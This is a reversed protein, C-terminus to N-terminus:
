SGRRVVYVATSQGPLLNHHEVSVALVEANERDFEHETVVMDSNSVNTLVYHEGVLGRGEYTRVLTFDAEGWLQMPRNLEQVQFDLPVRQAAMAVVLSKLARVYPPSPDALRSKHVARQAPQSKDRIVITDAPTDLRRLLLTYTAHATSVFLNM